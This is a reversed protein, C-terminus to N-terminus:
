RRSRIFRDYFLILAITKADVIEGRNIMELSETYSVAVPKLYEGKEPRPSGTRELKEAVFMHLIETSVGPSSYASFLKRLVSARYGTEEELERQAAEEPDEGPELTGAPLEYIWKNPGPRYQYVMLIKDGELLPLVVVAGPHQLLDKEVVLGRNDELVISALAYRKGKCLTKRSVIRVTIEGHLAKLWM